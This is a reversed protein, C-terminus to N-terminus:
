PAARRLGRHPRGADRRRACQAKRRAGADGGAGARRGGGQGQGDRRTRKGPASASTPAAEVESSGYIAQDAVASAYAALAKTNSALASPFADDFGFRLSRTM